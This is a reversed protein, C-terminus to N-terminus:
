PHAHTGGASVSSRFVESLTQRAPMLHRVQCRAQLALAFLDQSGGAIGEV